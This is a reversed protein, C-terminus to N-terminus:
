QKARDTPAQIYIKQGSIMLKKNIFIDPTKSICLTYFHKIYKWWSATNLDWIIIQRLIEKGPVNPLHLDLVILAPVIDPLRNVAEQGDLICETQYGAEELAHKFVLSLAPEDEIILGLPLSM